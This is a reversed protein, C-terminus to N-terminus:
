RNSFGSRFILQSKMYNQLRQKTRISGGLGLIGAEKALFMKQESIKTKKNLKVRHPLQDLVAPFSQNKCDLM